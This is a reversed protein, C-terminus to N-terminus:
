SIRILNIFSPQEYEKGLGGFWGLSPVRDDHLGFHYTILLEGEKSIAPQSKANYNWQNYYYQSDKYTTLYMQYRETAWFLSSVDSIERLRKFPGTLSDSVACTITGWISGETFVAVYKGAFAGSPMYSVNFENGMSCESIAKCRNPDTNWDRGDWYKWGTFSKYEEKTTRRVILKNDKRGYQYVYDDEEWIAEFGIERPLDGDAGEILRNAVEDMTIFGTNPDVKQLYFDKSDTGMSENFVNGLTYIQGDISTSDSVWYKGPLINGGDQSQSLGNNLEYYFQVNRVDPESGKLQMYAMNKMGMGFGPSNFYGTEATFDRYNGFNGIFSDQFTFLTVSNDNISGPLQADTISTSFIGDGGVWGSGQGRTAFPDESHNGQYAFTGSTSVVGNWLRSPEVAWGSDAYVRIESLGYGDGGFNSQPKIKIHQAHIGKLDVTLSAELQDSGTGKDLTYTGLQEWKGREFDLYDQDTESHRINCAEATTYYIEVKKVGADLANPDNYNWIKLSSLPYTGDLNLIVMSSSDGEATYWMHSPNNDATEKTSSTTNCESMGTGNTLNEANTEARPTFSEPWILEGKEPRTKQRFVRIESLGYQNGGYNSLPTFVLYRATIGGFDVPLGTGNVTAAMCGGHEEAEKSDSQTLTFTGLNQYTQNDESYSILIDKVCSGLDSVDAYNWICVRGIAQISGLDFYLSQQPADSVCMMDQIYQKGKDTTGDFSAHLHNPYWLGSMGSDNVLADGGNLARMPLYAGTIVDFLTQSSETPPPNPNNGGSTDSGPQTVSCASAFSLVMLAFMLSAIIKKMFVM